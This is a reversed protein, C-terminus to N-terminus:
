KNPIKMTRDIELYVSDSGQAVSHKIHFWATRGPSEAIMEPLVRESGDENFESIGLKMLFEKHWVGSDKTRWQRLRLTRDTLQKEGLAAALEDMNVDRPKGRDDKAVDMLRVKYQAFPTGRVPSTLEEPLGELMGLYWGQPIPPQRQLQTVPINYVDEFDPRDEDEEEIRQPQKAMNM